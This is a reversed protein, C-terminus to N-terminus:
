NVPFGKEDEPNLFILRECYPGCGVLAVPRPAALALLEDDSIERYDRAMAATQIVNANAASAIVQGAAFPQTSVMANPPLPRTLILECGRARAKAPPAPRSAPSLLNRWVLIVLVSLVTVVTAARQMQRVRRRRRAQRLTKGLLAERFDAPASEALVDDLLRDNDPPPNM